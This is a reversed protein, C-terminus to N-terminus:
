RVDVDGDRRVVGHVDREAPWICGVHHVHNPSPIAGKKSVRARGRTEASGKSGWYDCGKDVRRAGVGRCVVHGAAGEVIGKTVLVDAARVRTAVAGVLAAAIGCVLDYMEELL